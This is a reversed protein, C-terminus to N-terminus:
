LREIRQAAEDLIAAIDHWTNKETGGQHLRHRLVAHLNGMARRVPASDADERPAALAALRAFLATVKEENAALEAIGDTTAAFAKRTGEPGAGEIHNLDQLVSLAPYVVGASPVYSGGTLEEIARILDYGHRPQEAILKLLVLRLDASDFLRRRGRGEGREDFGDFFPRHSPGRPGFQFGHRDHHRSHHHRDHHHERPHHDHPHRHEHPHPDHPHRM